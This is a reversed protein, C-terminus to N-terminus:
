RPVAPRHPVSNRSPNEPRPLPDRRGDLFSWNTSEAERPVTSRTAPLTLRGPTRSRCPPMWRRDGLWVLRKASSVDSGARPPHRTLTRPQLSEWADGSGELTPGDGIRSPVLRNAPTGRRRLDALRAVRPDGFPAAEYQPWAVRRVETMTSFRNDMVTVDRNAEAPYSWAIYISVRRKGPTYRRPVHVQNYTRPLDSM